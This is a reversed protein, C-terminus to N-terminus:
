RHLQSYEEEIRSSIEEWGYIKAAEGANQSFRTRLESSATLEEMNGAFTSVNGYDSLLGTKGNEVVDPVGGVNTAVVPLGTAMAEAFVIGRSEEQSHLAFIGAARYANDLEEKSVDAKIEIREKNPSQSAYEQMKRYYGEDACTGVILLRAYVGKGCLEDFAQLLLLHGKRPSFAGVSLILNSDKSCEIDFFRSDIGQPIVHMEPIHRLHYKKLAEAVYQTDVIIEPCRNLMAREERTQSVYQYVSKLSFHKKLANKKEISLLGHVTVISKAGLSTLRKHIANSIKGTGHIHCIDPHLKQIEEIYTNVRKM